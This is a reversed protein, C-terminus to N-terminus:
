AKININQRGAELTELQEIENDNKELVRAVKLNLAKEKFQEELKGINDTLIARFKDSEPRLSVCFQNNYSLVMITMKGSEKLDLNIRCSFSNATSGGHNERFSIDGDRLEQWSVPLFTYFSQTTRSLLQLTEIDKLMAETGAIAKGIAAIDRQPANQINNTLMEHLKMLNAKLDNEIISSQTPSQAQSVATQLMNKYDSGADEREGAAEQASAQIVDALSKLKAELAVGSDRLLGKMGDSLLKDVSISINLKLGQMLANDKVAGQLAKLLADLRTQMDQGTSKLSEQLLTQLEQKMDNPISNIDSPLAKLLDSIRDASLSQTTLSSFEKLFRGIEESKSVGSAQGSDAQGLFQLRLENMSSSSGLVKLMVQSDKQLPVDTRATIVSGKIRLTVAGSSLLDMVDGRVIEGVNLQIPKGLPKTVTIMGDFNDTIKFNIM